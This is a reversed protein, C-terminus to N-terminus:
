NIDLHLLLDNMLFSFSEFLYFLLCKPVRRLIFHMMRCDAIQFQDELLFEEAIMCFEESKILVKSIMLKELMIFAGCIINSMKQQFYELLLM